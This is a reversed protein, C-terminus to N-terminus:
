VISCKSYKRRENKGGKRSCVGQIFYLRSNANRWKFFVIMDLFGAFADSIITTYEGSGVLILAGWYDETIGREPKARSTGHLPHCCKKAPRSSNWLTGLVDRHQPCITFSDGEEEFLGARLLILHCESKINIERSTELRRLHSSIDRSCTRPSVYEQDFRYHKSNGCSIPSYKSFSCFPGEAM